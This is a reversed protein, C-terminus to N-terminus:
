ASIAKLAARCIALQATDARAFIRLSADVFHDAHPPEGNDGDVRDVLAAAWGGKSPFVM